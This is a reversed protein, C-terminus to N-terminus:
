GDAQRQCCCRVRRMVGLQRGGNRLKSRATAGEFGQLLRYESM